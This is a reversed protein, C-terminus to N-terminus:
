SKKVNQPGTVKAAFRENNGKALNWKQMDPKLGRRPKENLAIQYKQDFMAKMDAILRVYFDAEDERGAKTACTHRSEVEQFQEIYRELTFQSGTILGNIANMNLRSKYIEIKEEPSLTDNNSNGNESNSETGQSEVVQQNSEVNVAGNNEVTGMMAKEEVVEEKSFHEAHEEVKNWKSDVTKSEGTQVSEVKEAKKNEVVRNTETMSNVNMIALYTGLSANVIKKYTEVINRESMYITPEGLNGFDESLKRYLCKAMTAVEDGVVGSTQKNVTALTNLKSLIDTCEQLPVTLPFYNCLHEYSDTNEDNLTPLLKEFYYDVVAGWLNQSVGDFKRIALQTMDLVYSLYEYLEVNGRWERGQALQALKENLSTGEWFVKHEYDKVVDDVVEKLLIGM